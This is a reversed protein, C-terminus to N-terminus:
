GTKELFKKNSTIILILHFIQSKAVRRNRVKGHDTVGMLPGVLMAMTLLGIQKRPLTLILTKDVNNILLVIRSKAVRRNRVKGHDKVGMLPGVLMAM